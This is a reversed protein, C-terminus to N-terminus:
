SLHLFLFGGPANFPITRTKGKSDSGGGGGGGGPGRLGQQAGKMKAIGAEDVEVGDQAGKWGSDYDGDGEGQGRLVSRGDEDGDPHGLLDIEDEPTDSDREKGKASIFGGKKMWSM